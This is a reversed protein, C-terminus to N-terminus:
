LGLLSRVVEEAVLMNNPMSGKFVIMMNQDIVIYQPRANDRKYDEYVLDEADHLLVVDSGFNQSWYELEDYEAHHLAM